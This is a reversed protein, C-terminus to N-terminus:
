HFFFLFYTALSPISGLVESKRTLHGVSQAVRGPGLDLQQLHATQDPDVSNVLKCSCRKSLDGWVASSWILPSISSLEFIIKRIEPHFCINHGRM